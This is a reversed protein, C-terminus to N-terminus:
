PRPHFKRFSEQIRQDAVHTYRDTTGIDEHGLMEQILRLDAGNELLHSAFSHRLTHPSISKSLQARQAYFRIRRWITFRDIPCGRKSSLFLPGNKQTVNPTYFNLLYHDIAELAREGIPIMREKKGKGYVKVFHEGVDCVRLRCLESVRMGTAYLLELIARDRAEIRDQSRPEALLRDVEKITLVNPLTEWVKPTEFSAGLDVDIYREKKLFRFFVKLAIWKRSISSSRYKQRQLFALFAVIEDSGIEQWTQEQLFLRFQAIDRGYAFITHESLGRESRLM